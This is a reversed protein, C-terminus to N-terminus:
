REMRQVFSPINVSMSIQVTLHSHCTCVAHSYSLNKYSQQFSRYKKLLKLPKAKGKGVFASVSDCGTSAHMGLLTVAINRGVAKRIANIHIYRTRSQTGKKQYISVGVKGANAVALVLVDTDECVIVIAKNEAAANKAHM